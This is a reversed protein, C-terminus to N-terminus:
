IRLVTSREVLPPAHVARDVGGRRVFKTAVAISDRWRSAMFLQVSPVHVVQSTHARPETESLELVCSGGCCGKSAHDREEDPGPRRAGEDCCSAEVHVCDASCLCFPLTLGSPLLLLLWVLVMWTRQAALSLRRIGAAAPARTPKPQRGDAAKISNWTASM